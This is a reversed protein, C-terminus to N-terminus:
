IAKLNIKKIINLDFQLTIWQKFPIYMCADKYVNDINLGHIESLSGKNKELKSENANSNFIYGKQTHTHSEEHRSHV